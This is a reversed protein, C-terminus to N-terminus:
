LVTTKIKKDNYYKKIQEKEQKHLKLLILLENYENAYSSAWAYKRDLDKLKSRMQYDLYWNKLKNIFTM